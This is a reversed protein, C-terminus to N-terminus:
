DIVADFAVSVITRATNWEVGLAWLRSAAAYLHFSRRKSKYRDLVQRKFSDPQMGIENPVKCSAIM